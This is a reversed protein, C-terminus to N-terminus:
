LHCLLRRSRSDDRSPKRLNQEDLNEPCIDNRLRFSVLSPKTGDEIRLQASGQTRNVRSHICRPRDLRKGFCSAHRPGCECRTELLEESLCRQLIHRTPSHLLRDLQKFLTVLFKDINGPQHAVFGVSCKTLCELSNNPGVGPFVDLTTM